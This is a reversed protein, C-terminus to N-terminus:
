HTKPRRRPTEKTNPQQEHSSKMNQIQGWARESAAHKPPRSPSLPHQKSINAAALGLGLGAASPAWGWVTATKLVEPVVAGLFSLAAALHCFRGLTMSGACALILPVVDIFTWWTHLVCLSLAPSSAFFM